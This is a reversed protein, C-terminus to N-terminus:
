FSNVVKNDMLRNLNCTRSHTKANLKTNSAIISHFYFHCLPSFLKCQFLKLTLGINYFVFGSKITWGKKTPTKGCVARFKINKWSFGLSCRFHTTKASCTTFVHFMKYVLSKSYTKIREWCADEDYKRTCERHLTTFNLRKWSFKLNKSTKKIFHRHWLSQTIRSFCKRLHHKYIHISHCLVSKVKLNLKGRLNTWHWKVYCMMLWFRLLLFHVDFKLSETQTHNMISQFSQTASWVEVWNNM